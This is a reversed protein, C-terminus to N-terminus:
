KVHRRWFSSSRGDNPRIVFAVKLRQRTQLVKNVEGAAHERMKNDASGPLDKIQCGRSKRRKAVKMSLHHTVGHVCGFGSEFIEDPNDPNAEYICNCITSKGAGSNGFISLALVDAKTDESDEEKQERRHRAQPQGAVPSAPGGDLPHADSSTALLAAPSLASSSADRPSDELLSPMDKAKQLSAECDTFGGM